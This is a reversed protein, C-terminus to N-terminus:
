TVAGPTSFARRVATQEAEDTLYDAPDLSPPPDLDRIWGALSRVAGQLADIEAALDQVRQWVAEPVQQGAVFREGRANTFTDSTQPETM